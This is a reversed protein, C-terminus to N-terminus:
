FRKNGGREGRNTKKRIITKVWKRYIMRYPGPIHKDDGAENHRNFYFLTATVDVTIDTNPNTQSKKPKLSSIESCNPFHNM